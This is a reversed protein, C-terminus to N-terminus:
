KAILKKLSSKLFEYPLPYKQNDIQWIGLYPSPKIQKKPLNKKLVKEQNKYAYSKANNGATSQPSIRWSYLIKPIHIIKKSITNQIIRLYLDWDQAGETGKKFKGIKELYTKKIATLHNFYNVSQILNKNFKPKLFPELHKNNLIKDQDSYFFVAKPYKKIYFVLWKLANPWLFDDHDLLVLYKGTAIQIAKNTNQSIHKNFKNFIIKIKKNKSYKKLIKIVKKKTSHDDSICLEWKSYSQNIVSELCTILNKPNPNYIPLIISIKINQKVKPTKQSYIKSYKYKYLTNLLFKYFIELIKQKIKKFKKM